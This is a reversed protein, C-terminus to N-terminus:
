VSLLFSKARTSNGAYTMGPLRSLVSEDSCLEPNITSLVPHGSFGQSVRSSLALYCNQMRVPKGETFTVLTGGYARSFGIPFRSGGMGAPRTELHGSRVMIAVGYAQRSDIRGTVRIGWMLKIQLAM